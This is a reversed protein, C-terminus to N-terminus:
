RRRRLIDGARLAYPCAFSVVEQVRKADACPAGASDKMDKVIIQKGFADSPSLIELVDGEYFRTRMEAYVRGPRAPTEDPGNEPGEYGKVVAIFECTGKTQSNDYSVTKDNKGLMYATTYDRHAACSLEEKLLQLDGGDLIRRYANVVTALYYESKMRGEIKFSCVGATELESLHASMNLDKSNLFYTGKEDEQVETWGDNKCEQTRIEYRYRCAQVCAGRNSSRGDLYDSLLCRGSYSICMAGHVFAELELDPNEEHINAIEELSLERALVVRSAGLEKWM